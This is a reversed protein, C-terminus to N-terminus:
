LRINVLSVGTAVIISVLCCDAVVLKLMCIAVNEDCKHLRRSTRTSLWVWALLVIILFVNGAFDFIYANFLVSFVYNKWYRNSFSASLWAQLSILQEQPYPQWIRKAFIGAMKEITVPTPQTTIRLHMYHCQIRSKCKTFLVSKQCHM